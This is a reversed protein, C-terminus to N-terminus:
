LLSYNSHNIESAEIQISILNNGCKYMASRALVIRLFLSCQPNKMLFLYTMLLDYIKGLLRSM